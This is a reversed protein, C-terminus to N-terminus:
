AAQRPSLIGSILGYYDKIKDIDKAEDIWHEIYGCSGCLYRTVPIGNLGWFGVRVSNGVGAPRSTGPIKVIERSQCKPCKKANKM